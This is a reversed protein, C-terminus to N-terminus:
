AARPARGAVVERFLLTLALALALVAACLYIVAVDVVGAGLALAAVGAGATLGRQFIIVVPLFALREYAQFVAWCTGGLQEAFVATALLISVAREEGGMDIVGTVVATTALIPVALVLKLALTNAFYADVLRHDRAVERALIQDQGFGAPFALLSGLSLGFVFVGFAADGLSRALVVFFVVSILKSGVDAAARYSTNALIRRAGAQGM